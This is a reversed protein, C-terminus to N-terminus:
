GRVKVVGGREIRTLPDCTCQGNGPPRSTCFASHRVEIVLGTTGEPQEAMLAVIKNITPQRLRFKKWGPQLEYGFPIRM